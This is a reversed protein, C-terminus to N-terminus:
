IYDSFEPVVSKLSENRIKDLSNTYLVFQNWYRTNQQDLSKELTNIITELSKFKTQKYEEILKLKLEKPLITIGLYPPQTVVNIWNFTSDPNINYDKHIKNLWEIQNPLNFLTFNMLTHSFNVSKICDLKSYIKVSENFDQWSLTTGGRVYEFLKGTAEFSLSINVKKFHSWLKHLHKSPKTGNTIYVLNINKAYNWSVLNELLIHMEDQMMPEGGKFNIKVVHKFIEKDQIFSTNGVNVKHQDEDFKLSKDLKKYDKVWSTSNWPGCHRCKLNCKNSFNIDMQKIMMPQDINWTLNDSDKVIDDFFKIRQYNIDTDSHKCRGCSPPLKDEFMKQRLSKIEKSNWYEQISMDTTKLNPIKSMWCCPNLYGDPSVRLAMFPAKCIPQNM